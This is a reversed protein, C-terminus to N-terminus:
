DLQPRSSRMKKVEGRRGKQQLRREKSAKTPRTKIRPKPAVAAREILRILRQRADERNREQSRFRDAKFILIGENTMRQGALRKLRARVPGPLGPSADVNFRLEVATSVKNVNQGGPGSARVFTEELETDDISITQTIQIM